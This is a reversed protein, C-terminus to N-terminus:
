NDTISKGTLEISVVIHTEYFINNQFQVLKDNIFQEGFFTGSLEIKNESRKLM